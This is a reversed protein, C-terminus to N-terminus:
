QIIGDLASAIWTFQLPNQEHGNVIWMSHPDYHPGAKVKTHCVNPKEAKWLVLVHLTTPPHM